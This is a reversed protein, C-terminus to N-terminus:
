FCLLFLSHLVESQKDLSISLKSKKSFRRPSTKGICKIYSIELFINKMDYELLQGFKMTQNDKSGSINCLIHTNCNNTLWITSDYIKFNVKAKKDLRKGKNKPWSLLRQHVSVAKLVFYFAIKMM